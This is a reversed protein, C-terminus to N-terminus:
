DEVKLRSREKVLLIKPRRFVSAKEDVGTIGLRESKSFSCWFIILSYCDRRV